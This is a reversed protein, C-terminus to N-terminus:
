LYFASLHFIFLTNHAAADRLSTEIEPDVKTALVNAVFRNMKKWLSRRMNLKYKVTDNETKFATLFNIDFAINLLMVWWWDHGMM